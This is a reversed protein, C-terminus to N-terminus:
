NQPPRQLPLQLPIQLPQQLPQQRSLQSQPLIQLQPQNLLPTNILTIDMQRVVINVIQLVFVTVNLTVFRALWM